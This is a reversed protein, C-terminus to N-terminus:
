RNDAVTVSELLTNRDSELLHSDRIAARIIDAELPTCPTAKASKVPQNKQKLVKGGAGKQPKHTEKAKPAM